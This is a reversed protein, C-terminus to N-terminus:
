AVDQVQLLRELERMIQAVGARIAELNAVLHARDIKYLALDTPTNPTPISLAQCCCYAISEAQCELMARSFTQRERVGHCREHALEHLITQCRNGLPDLANLAITGTGTSYGHVGDPMDDREEVVLGARRVCSLLSTYLQSYDGAVDQWIAEAMPRGETQSIDFTYGTSFRALVEREEGTEADKEKRFHPCLIELGRRWQDRKITRGLSEWTKRSAVRRAEPMQITILWCNRASYTWFRALTQLYRTLEEGQAAADVETALADLWADIRALNVTTPNIRTPENSAVM